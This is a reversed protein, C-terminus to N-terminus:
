AFTFDAQGTERVSLALRHCEQFRAAIAAEHRAGITAASVGPTALKTPPCVGVSKLAPSSDMKVCRSSTEGAHGETERPRCRDYIAETAVRVENLRARPTM